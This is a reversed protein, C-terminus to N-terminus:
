CAKQEDSDSPSRLLMLILVVLDQLLMGSEDDMMHRTRLEGKMVWLTLVELLRCDDDAVVLRMQIQHRNHHQCRFQDDERLVPHPM